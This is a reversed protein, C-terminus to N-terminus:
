PKNVTPESVASAPLKVNMKAAFTSAEAEALSEECLEIEQDVDGEILLGQKYEKLLENRAIKARDKATQDLMQFEKALDEVIVCVEKSKRQIDLPKEAQVQDIATHEKIGERREVAKNTSYYILGMGRLICKVGDWSFEDFHDQIQSDSVLDMDANTFLQRILQVILKKNELLSTGPPLNVEIDAEEEKRDAKVAKAAKAAEKEVRNRAFLENPSPFDIRMMDLALEIVLTEEDFLPQHSKSLIGGFARNDLNIHYTSRMVSEIQSPLYDNWSQRSCFCKPLPKRLEKLLPGWPPYFAIVLAGLSKENVLMFFYRDQWYRNANMMEGVVQKKQRPYM